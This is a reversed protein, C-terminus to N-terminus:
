VRTYRLEDKLYQLLKEREGETIEDFGLGAKVGTATKVCWIVKGKLTIPQGPAPIELEIVTNEQVACAGLSGELDICAGGPSLNNLRVEVDVTSLLNFRTGGVELFKCKAKKNINVRYYRRKEKTVETM